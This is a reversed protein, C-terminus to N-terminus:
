NDESNIFHSLNVFSSLVVIFNQPMMEFNEYIYSISHNCNGTIWRLLPRPTFLCRVSLWDSFTPSSPTSIDVASVAGLWRSERWQIVPIDVVRVSMQCVYCVQLDHETFHKTIKLKVLYIIQTFNFSSIM